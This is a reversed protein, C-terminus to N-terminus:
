LHVRLAELKEREDEERELMEEYASEDWVDDVAAQYLAHLDDPDLADLEVQVLEGHRAVFAGARSDTWKGPAPPLGYEDVQAPLLAIREVRDFGGREAVREVFDRPIDEGSPDFDGAYFLVSARDDGRISSAVQDVFTQSSYGGLAIISFGFAGFWSSLQATIGHKEVGLYINWAQGLSHDITYGRIITDLADEPSEYDAWHEIGRTLDILSPFDNRRRAEATHRSLGKYSNITNQLLQAAVLRYFLQRLTVGTDYSLVIVAARDLINPWDIRSM